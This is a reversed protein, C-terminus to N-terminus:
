YRLDDFNRVDLRVSKMIRVIWSLSESETRESDDKLYLCRVGHASTDSPNYDYTESIGCTCGQFAEM